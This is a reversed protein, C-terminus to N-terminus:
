PTITIGYRTGFYGEVLARNTPSLATNYVCIEAIWGTLFSVGNSTESGISRRDNADGSYYGIATLTDSNNGNTFATVSTGSAVRMCIVNWSSLVSHTSATDAGFYSGWNASATLRARILTALNTSASSASYASEQAAWVGTGKIVVFVTCPNGGVNLTHNLWTTGSFSIANHGNVFAKALVPQVASSGQNANAGSASKDNWQQIPGGDTTQPTVGNDSFIGDDARLWHVLGAISSPDVFGSGSTVNQGFFLPSGPCSLALSSILLAALFAKM